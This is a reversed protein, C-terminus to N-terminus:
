GVHASPINESYAVKVNRQQYAKALRELRPRFLDEAGYGEVKLLREEMQEQSAIEGRSMIHGVTLGREGLRRAILLCRHCDLPDHESCMMAIRHSAAGKILRDLGDAFEGTAAMAEYDAVGNCFLEPNSPRGGLERGLFVYSVSEKRLWQKLESQSFHPFHRSFPSSRVDAIANVGTQRLLSFFRERSHTSHGISYLDFNSRFM